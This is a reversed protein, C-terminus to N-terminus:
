RLRLRSHYDRRGGSSFPAHLSAYRAGLAPLLSANAADLPSPHATLPPHFSAHDPPFAARDPAVNPLPHLRFSKRGRNGEGNM